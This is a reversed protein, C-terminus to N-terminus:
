LEKLHLKFQRVVGETANNYELGLFSSLEEASKEVLSEILRKENEIFYQDM